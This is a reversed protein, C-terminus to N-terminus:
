RSLNNALNWSLSALIVLFVEFFKRTPRLSGFTFPKRTERHPFPFPASGVAPRVRARPTYSSMSRLQCPFFSGTRGM